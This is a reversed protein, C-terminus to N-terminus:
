RSVPELLALIAEAVPGPDSLVDLHRGPLSAITWARHGAKSAADQYAPSLQLYGRVPPEWAQPAPVAVDFFAEPLQPAEDALAKRDSADPVLEALTELPWWSTWPPLVGDVALRRVAERMSPTVVTHGRIAPLVADVLVTARAGVLADLVVPALVGAGSHAVVADAQPAIFLAADRARRWWGEVPGSSRLDPVSLEHGAGALLPALRRWVVPSLLPPHLLVVNVLACAHCGAGKERSGPQRESGLPM